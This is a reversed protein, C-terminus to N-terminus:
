FNEENPISGSRDKTINYRAQSCTPTCCNCSVMCYEYLPQEPIRCINAVQMCQLPLHGRDCVRMRSMNVTQVCLLTSYRSDERTDKRLCYYPGLFLFTDKVASTLVLHIVNDSQM